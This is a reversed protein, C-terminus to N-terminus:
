RLDLEMKIDATAFPSDEVPIYKFGFKEYLGLAAKLQHNSFLVIRSAKLEKAKNLCKELLLKSIGKQRFEKAVAMKALEFIGNHEHILAASGVVQEDAMALYIAGGDNLIYQHPDNLIALDHPEMLNYLELWEANLDRFESKYRDSYEIIKIPSM